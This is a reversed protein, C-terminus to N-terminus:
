AAESALLKKAAKSDMGSERVRQANQRSRVDVVEVYPLQDFPLDFANPVGYATGFGRVGNKDQVPFPDGVRLSVRGKLAKTAFYMPHPQHRM